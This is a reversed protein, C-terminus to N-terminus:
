GDAIDMVVKRGGKQIVPTGTAHRVAKLTHEIDVPVTGALLSVPLHMFAEKVLPTSPGLLVTRIDPNSKSLIEETTSNLITTSTMIMVDAWGKLKETLMEMSGLNEKIDVIEVVAGRKEIPKILPRFLGVMIIKTDRGIELRDFLLNNDEEEPLGSAREYNLANILALAMTRQLPDSDNIKELLLIAPRGEPDSYKNNLTCGTKKEYYTYSLGIGGDATSVATYGTGISMQDVTTNRAREEFLEYLISNLKM